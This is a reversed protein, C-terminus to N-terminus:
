RMEALPVPASVADFENCYTHIGCARDDRESNVQLISTQVGAVLVTVCQCAM